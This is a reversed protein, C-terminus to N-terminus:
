FHYTLAVNVFDRDRLRNGMGGGWFLFAMIDFDFHGYTVQLGAVGIRRGEQFNGALGPTIGNVDHFLFIQPRLQLGPILVNNYAAILAMKYGWSFQDPFAAADAMFPNLKLANGTEEIGPSYHTNTTLLSDFQLVSLPPLDPVYAASLEFLLVMTDSGLLSSHRGFIKAASIAGQWIGMREYGRIYSNPAVEGPEGGRYVNLYAPLAFGAAALTAGELDEFGPVGVLGLLTNDVQTNGILDGLAGLDPIINVTERPFAPQMAVFFVDEADVQLPQNPRYSLEGAFITNWASTNFSLGYLHIDEPYELFIGVTDIPVANLNTLNEGNAPGTANLGCALFFEATNTLPSGDSVDIGRPNGERRACSANAAIASVSPVRAHFNAYYFGLETGGLWDAIYTLKFGYQGTDSPERNALRDASLSTDSVLGLVPQANQQLGYPDEPTKGFPLPFADDDAVKTSIDAVFSWLADRAPLAFPRWEFQYFGELRMRDSLNTGLRIMGVPRRTESLDAAPRFFNNFNTPNIFNLSGSITFLSEGWTYIQRGIRVDLEHGDWLPVRFFINALRLQFDYMLSERMTDPRPVETDLGPAESPKLIINPRITERGTNVFDYYALWSLQLGWTDHRVQLESHWKVLGAVLDGQDYNLDGDDSIQWASGPAAMWRNHPELNNPNVSICADEDCLEPNLNSKGIFGKNREAIRWGAGIAVANNWLVHFGPGIDLDYRAASAPTTMLMVTSALIAITTQSARM